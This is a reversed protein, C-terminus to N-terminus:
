APPLMQLPGAMSPTTLPTPAPAAAAASAPQQPPVDQPTATSSSAQALLVPEQLEKASANASSSSSSPSLAQDQAHLREITAISVLCGALIAASIRTGTLQRKTKAMVRPEKREHCHNSLFTPSGHICLLLLGSHASSRQLFRHSLHALPHPYLVRKTRYAIQKWRM